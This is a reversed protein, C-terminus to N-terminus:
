HANRLATLTQITEQTIKIEEKDQDEDLKDLEAQFSRLTHDQNKRPLRCYTEIFSISLPRRM